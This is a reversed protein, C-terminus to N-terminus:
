EFIYQGEQLLKLTKAARENQGKGHFSKFGKWKGGKKVQVENPKDPNLRYEPSTTTTM